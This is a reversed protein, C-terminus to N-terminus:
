SVLIMIRKSNQYQSRNAQFGDMFVRSSAGSASGMVQSCVTTAKMWTSGGSTLSPFETSVLSTFFALHNALFHSVWLITRCENVCKPSCFASGSSALSKDVPHLLTQFGGSVCRDLRRVTIEVVKGNIRRPM